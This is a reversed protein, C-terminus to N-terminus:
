LQLGKRGRQEANNGRNALARAEHLTDRLECVFISASSRAERSALSSSSFLVDAIATSANM